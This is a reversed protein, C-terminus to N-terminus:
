KWVRQEKIRGMLTDHSVCHGAQHDKLAMEVCASLAERPLEKILSHEQSPEQNKLFVWCSYLVQSNDTSYIADMLKHRLSAVDMKSPNDLAVADEVMRIGDEADPLHYRNNNSM